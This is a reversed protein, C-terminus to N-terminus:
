QSRSTGEPGEFRTSSTDAASVVPNGDNVAHPHSRQPHDYRFTSIGRNGCCYSRYKRRVTAIAQSLASQIALTYHLAKKLRSHVGIFAFNNTDKNADM